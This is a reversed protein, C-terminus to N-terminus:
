DRLRRLAALTCTVSTMYVPNQAYGDPPYVCEYPGGNEPNGSRFDTRRLHDIYEKALNGAAATDVLSIAFCVRGTPTGWYAGNQYRNMGAAAKEWMTADSFNGNTPVHRIQGEKSITGEAYAKALALAAWTQAPEDLAGIYVAYATAWVDPQASTGTTARLMGSEDAFLPALGSRILLAIKRYEGAATTDGTMLFLESLELASQYKLLSGFCVDGTMGVIDRFGFDCTQFAPNITAMGTVPNEPVMAFALVLREALSRSGVKQDLIDANGTISIYYWAMHIFYYQDCYPPLRWIPNGQDEYSYTGPFYVPLGDIFRIHDPISGTPVLSGGGTIWSQDAQREATYMLMNLQETDTIFGSELSMAYDRIWFSPYCDRGGPRILTIGTNNPGFARIAEPLDQGSLVRSSDVVARTLGELFQMDEKALQQSYAQVGSVILSLLFSCAILAQRAPTRM